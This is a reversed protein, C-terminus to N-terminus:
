FILSLNLIVDFGKEALLQIALTENKSSPQTTFVLKRVGSVALTTAEDLDPCGKCFLTGDAIEDNKVKTFLVLIAGCQLEIDEQSLVKKKKAYAIFNDKVVIARSTM